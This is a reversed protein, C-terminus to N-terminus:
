EITTTNTLSATKRPHFLEWNWRKDKFVYEVRVSRKFYFFWIMSVIATYGGFVASTPWLDIEIPLSLLSFIVDLLLVTKLTEVHSWSRRKGSLLFFSLCVQILLLADAPVTTVLFFLYHVRTDWPVPSDNPLIPITTALYIVFGCYLGIFYYLLWGGIPHKRRLFCILWVWFIAGGATHPSPRSSDAGFLNDPFLVFILLLFLPIAIRSTWHTTIKNMAFWGSIGSVNVITVSATPETM